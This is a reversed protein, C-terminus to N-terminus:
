RIDLIGGDENLCFYTTHTVRDGDADFSVDQKDIVHGGEGECWSVWQQHQVFAFWIVGAVTIVAAVAGAYIRISRWSATRIIM